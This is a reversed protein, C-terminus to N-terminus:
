LLKFQLKINLVLKCSVALQNKQAMFKVYKINSLTTFVETFEINTPTILFAIYTNEMAKKIGITTFNEEFVMFYTNRIKNIEEFRIIYKLIYKKNVM